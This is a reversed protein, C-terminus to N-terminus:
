LADPPVLPSAVPDSSVVNVVGDTMLADSVRRVTDATAHSGRLPDHWFQVTLMWRDASVGTLVATPSEHSHVGDADRAAQVVRAVVDDLRLAPSREVRVHVESRRGGHRSENILLGSMLLSHPVHVTRGDATLIVAARGNLDQVVGALMEGDPGEVAIQEGLRVSQRSQVLVGAAFNDAVGRLVLVLIVVAIITMALLPQVNAGLFALAVGIGGLLILYQTFRAVLQAVPATIGPTRGALKRIASGVLRSVIWGVIVALLAFVIQASTLGTPFLESLDM